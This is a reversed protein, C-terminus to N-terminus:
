RGKREKGGRGARKRGTRESKIGDEAPVFLRQVRHRMDPQAQPPTHDASPQGSLAADAPPYRWLEAAVAPSAAEVAHCAARQLLLHTAQQAAEGIAAM